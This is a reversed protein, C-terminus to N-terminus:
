AFFDDPHRCFHQELPADMAILIATSPRGRRGARGAQQWVSAVTPPVGVHLTLDLDGIDIGLMPSSVGWGSLAIEWNLAPAKKELKSVKKALKSQKNQAKKTRKMEKQAELKERRQKTEERKKQLVANSIQTRSMGKQASDLGNSIIQHTRFAIRIHELWSQRVADHMMFMLAEFGPSATLGSQTMMKVFLGNDECPWRNQKDLSGTCTSLLECCTHSPCLLDGTFLRRELKRRELAAYGGRYGAIRAQLEPRDELHKNTAQLVIEVLARVQLFCVTRHGRRAAQSIIWAAEDYSSGRTRYGVGPPLRPAAGHGEKESFRARKRANQQERSPQGEEVELLPPNWLCFIMSQLCCHEARHVIAHYPM